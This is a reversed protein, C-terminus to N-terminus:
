KAVLHWVAKRKDSYAPSCSYWAQSLPQDRLQAKAEVFSARVRALPEGRACGFGPTTRPYWWDMDAVGYEDFTKDGYPAPPDGDFAPTPWDITVDVQDEQLTLEAIAAGKPLAQELLTFAAEEETIWRRRPLPRLARPASGPAPRFGPSAPLFAFPPADGPDLTAEAGREGARWRRSLVTGDVPHLVLEFALDEAAFTRSSAEGLAWPWEEEARTSTRSPAEAPLLDSLPHAVRPGRSVGRADCRVQRLSSEDTGQRFYADIGDRTWALAVPEYHFNLEGTWGERCLSLMEGLQGRAIVAGRSAVQARQAQQLREAEVGERHIAYGALGAGTALLALGSAHRRFWRGATV